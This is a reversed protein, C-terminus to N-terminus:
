LLYTFYIDNLMQYVGAWQSQSDITTLEWGTDNLEYIYVETSTIDYYIKITSYVNGNYSYMNLEILTNTQLENVYDLFVAQLFEATSSPSRLYTLWKDSYVAMKGKNVANNAIKTRTVAGSVIKGETVAGEALKNASVASDQIKSASVSNSAIKNSTIAGDAVKATTIAGDIINGSAVAGSAIKSSTIAGTPINESVINPNIVEGSEKNYLNEVSM